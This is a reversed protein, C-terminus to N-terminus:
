RHIDKAQAARFPSTFFYGLTELSFWWRSLRRINTGDANMVYIVKPGEPELGRPVHVFVVRQGDPSWQPDIVEGTSTETLREQNAGDADM